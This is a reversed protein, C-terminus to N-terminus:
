GARGTTCPWSGWGCNGPPCSASRASPFATRRPSNSATGSSCSPISRPCSEWSEFYEGDYSYELYYVGTHLSSYYRVDSLEVAGPLQITVREGSRSFKHVSTIGQRDGLGVFATVAYVACLLLCLLSDRRRWRHDDGMAPPLQRCLLPLYESFVMLLFAITALPFILTLRNMPM